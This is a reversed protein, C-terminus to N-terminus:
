KMGHKKAFGHRFENMDIVKDDNVDIRRFMKEIRAKFNGSMHDGWNRSAKKSSYVRKGHHERFAQRRIERQNKLEEHNLIGDGDADFRDFRDGAKALAEERTVGKENIDESLAFSTSATMALAISLVATKLTMM